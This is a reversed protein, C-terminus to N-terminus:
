QVNGLEERLTEKLPRIQYERNDKIPFWYSDNYVYVGGEKDFGKVKAKAKLHNNYGTMFVIVEGVKLRPHEVKDYGNEKIYDDVEKTNLVGIGLDWADNM